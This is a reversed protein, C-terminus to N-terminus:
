KVRRGKRRVLTAGLGNERFFRMVEGRRTDRVVVLGQKLAGIPLHTGADQPQTQKATWWSAHLVPKGTDARGLTAILFTLM